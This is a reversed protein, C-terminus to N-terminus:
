FFGSKYVLMADGFSYFRYHDLIAQQYARMIHSYGGFACVLMLLTTKPLHFNTLLLDVTEFRYSPYIFLHTEGTVSQFPEKKDKVYITELVRVSTTGVAIIRRHEKKAQNLRGAVEESVSFWERHMRHNRIDTDRVPRFTGSGVHLTLFVTEVGKERLRGLLPQTFHLGATPAASSGVVEGYITQYQEPEIEQKTIYPPLPLEGETEFDKPSIAQEFELVREGTPLVTVVTARHSKKGIFLLHGAKVRRSPFILGKWM